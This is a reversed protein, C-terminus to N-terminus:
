KSLKGELSELRKHLSERDRRSEAFFDDHTELIQTTRAHVGDLKQDIGKMVDSVHTLTTSVVELHHIAADRIPVILVVGAWKCAAYFAYGVALLLGVALGQNTVWAWDTDALFLM